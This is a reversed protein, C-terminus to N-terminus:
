NNFSLLTKWAEELKDNDLLSKAKQHLTNELEAPNDELKIFLESLEILKYDNVETEDPLTEIGGLKGIDNGSLIKSNLIDAPINDVGIGCTTIPKSIEFM